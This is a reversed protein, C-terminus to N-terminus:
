LFDLNKRSEHLKKVEELFEEESITDLLIIYNANRKIHKELKEIVLNGFNSSNPQYELCLVVSNNPFKKRLEEIVSNLSHYQRRIMYYERPQRNTKLIIFNEIKNIDSVRIVRDEGLIRIKNDNEQLRDNLFNNQEGLQQLARELEALRIEQKVIQKRAQFLAIAALLQSVKVAFEPSMAMAIHCTAYHHAFSGRKEHTGTKVFIIAPSNNGEKKLLKEIEVLLKKAAQTRLWGKFEKGMQRCMDTVNIYNNSKLLTVNLGLDTIAGNGSGLGEM